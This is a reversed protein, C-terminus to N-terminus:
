MSKFLPPVANCGRSKSHWWQKSYFPLLNLLNEVHICCNVGRVDTQPAWRSEPSEFLPIRTANEDFVAGTYTNWLLSRDNSLEDLHLFVTIFAPADPRLQKSQLPFWVHIYVILPAKLLLSQWWQTLSHKEKHIQRGDPANQWIIHQNQRCLLLSKIGLWIFLITNHRSDTQLCGWLVLRLLQCICSKDCETRRDHKTTWSCRGHYHM